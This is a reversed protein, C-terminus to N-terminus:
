NEAHDRFGHTIYSIFNTHMLHLRPLFLGDFAFVSYVAYAVCVLELRLLEWCNRIIELWEYSDV